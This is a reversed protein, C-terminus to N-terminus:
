VVDQSKFAKSITESDYGAALLVATLLNEVIDDLRMYDHPAAVSYTANENELTIKTM